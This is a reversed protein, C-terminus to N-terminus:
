QPRKGRALSRYYEEVLARYEPPAQAPAGLAPRNEGILGLRRWLMFEYAKLGEIVDQQLQALGKPDGLTRESELRRLSAIASDLGRVDLGQGALDRRLAEAGERRLRFERGLQRADGGTIPGASGPAGGNGGGEPSGNGTGAQNGRGPQSGQGGQGQQGSQGQGGQGSAGQQGAAGPQGAGSQQGAGGQQGQREGQSGPGRAGQSGSDQGREAIRDRLSELGRVLDRARELARDRRGEASESLAGAAERLRTTVDGLTGTIQEEFSRAYEGSGSKIVEKSYVIRDRLRSEKIREAAEGVKGAAGPQDRRGERALREADAQLQEVGAALADKKEGLRTVRDLREAGSSGPLQGVEGAIGKQREALEEAKRQLGRIGESQAQTRANEIDRTAGKLRDLATTGQGPAGPAGSAARRMAEAAEQMRRAADALEPSNQERALRELRRAEEEAQRALERQASGGGGQGSGGAGQGSTRERLADAMRQMRENEQQQRSALRRLREATEDLEHRASQDQGRRVSEYQNKLKDTELEFLDALDEARAQDGGGGGGGGGGMQVQMERYAAEARQLHQLAKQEAPLAQNPLGRGLGEEAAQMEKGAAELEAHIQRFVTDVAAANREVLRRDLGAVDTKLRGQAIALTTLNERREREAVKASDRLWNFTGAVIERQRASLGDPNDAGGGGGGGADAQKYDRGFPRVELFYIDSSGRNGAGDTATAHYAVLDGPKLGLEELFLTHAARVEATPPASPRRRASDTLAVRQEPAGNVSYALEVGQVGYDDAAKVAITVEEVSTVKTDRGPQEITISPARDELAEIVYQVAGPVVTGDPAVLDVRYFGDRTVRFAGTLRGDPGPTLPLTGGRDLRITGGKVPRTVAAHVVVTTGRVAAVDGGDEIREPPLGTYPPFRLELSLKQVAPFDTIGLHYARSRVGDAEVYYEAARTLDFLRTTFEAAASDRLMPIRVWESATDVRMALEAAEASFGRLTARVEVAGGRPVSADGPTVLVAFVPAAAAESWPVFLVRLTDRLIAPGALALLAGLGAVGGTLLGARRLRPRELGPGAELRRMEGLAQEVVRRALAPSPRADAPTRLEHVASVLSQRLEPAREEIYLALRAEDPRRWAPLLLYRTLAAGILLYGLVRVTVVTASGAGLLWTLLGGALVALLGAAAVRAAGEALVRARWRRRLRRIAQSLDQDAGSQSEIPPTM